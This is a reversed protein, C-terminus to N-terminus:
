MSDTSLDNCRLNVKSIFESKSESAWQGAVTNSGIDQANFVSMLVIQHNCVVSTYTLDEKENCEWNELKEVDVESMNQPMCLGFKAHVTFPGIKDQGIMKKANNGM